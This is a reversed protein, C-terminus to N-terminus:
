TNGRKEEDNSKLIDMNSTGVMRVYKIRKFRERCLVIILWARSWGIDQSYNQILVGMLIGKDSICTHVNIELM